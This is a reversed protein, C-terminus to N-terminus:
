TPYSHNPPCPCPDKRECNEVFVYEDYECNPRYGIKQYIRKAAQNAEDVFLACYRWGTELLLQSLSGVCATAYGRGRLEPPTYVLGISIGNRTPRTKMAISVPRHVEYLYIDGAQLRDTAARLEGEREALGFVVAHFGCWWRAVLETDQETAQRLKGPGPVQRPIERLEYVSQRRELDFGKGAAEAWRAAVARAAKSPGLVGPLRWGDGLLDDALVSANHDLNGRHAYVVLKHPPTMIAALMLGREDEVTKLCPDSDFREPHHILQGCIGLMLSNAAENSELEAQTNRLLLEPETYTRVRM